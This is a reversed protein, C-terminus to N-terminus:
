IKDANYKCTFTIATDVYPQGRRPVCSDRIQAFVVSQETIAVEYWHVNTGM